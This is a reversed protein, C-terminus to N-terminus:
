QIGPLEFWAQNEAFLRLPHSSLNARLDKKGDEGGFPEQPSITNDQKYDADHNALEFLVQQHGTQDNAGDGDEVQAAMGHLAM